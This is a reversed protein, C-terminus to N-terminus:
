EGRTPFSVTITALTFPFSSGPLGVMLHNLPFHSSSPLLLPARKEKLSDWSEALLTLVGHALPGAPPTSSTCSMSRLLATAQPMATPRSGPHLTPGRLISTTCPQQPSATHPLPSSAQPQTSIYRPKTMYMGVLAQPTWPCPGWFDRHTLHSSVSSAM